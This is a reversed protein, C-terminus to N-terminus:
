RQILAKPQSDSTRVIIVNFTSILSKIQMIPLHIILTGAERKPESVKMPNLILQYSSAPQDLILDCSMEGSRFGAPGVPWKSSM